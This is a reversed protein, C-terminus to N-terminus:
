SQPSYSSFDGDWSHTQQQQQQQQKEWLGTWGKRINGRAEEPQRPVRFMGSGERYPEGEEAAKGLKELHKVCQWKLWSM